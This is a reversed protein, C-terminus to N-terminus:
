KERMRLRVTQEMTRLGVTTIHNLMRYTTGVDGGSLWLFTSTGSFSDTEMTISPDSATWVSSAITDGALRATWDLEYDLVEDPDKPPWKLSV